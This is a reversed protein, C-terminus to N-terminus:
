KSGAIEKVRKKWEKTTTDVVEHEEEVPEWQAKVKRYVEYDADSFDRYRRKMIGAMLKEDCVVEIIMYSVDAKKAVSLAEKRLSEKYFTADLIVDKGLRLLSEATRFLAEYVKEKEENTYEPTEFILKRIEDTRLMVAGTLKELERSVTSKGVGPLGCILYLM